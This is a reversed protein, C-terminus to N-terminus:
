AYFKKNDVPDFISLLNLPNNKVTATIAVDCIILRRKCFNQYKEENM